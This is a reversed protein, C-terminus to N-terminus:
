GLLRVDSSFAKMTNLSFGEDRMHNEFVGLAAQLSADPPIPPPAPPLKNEPLLPAQQGDTM